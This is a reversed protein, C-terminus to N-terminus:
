VMDHRYILNCWGNEGPAKDEHGAVSLWHRMAAHHRDNLKAASFFLPAAIQSEFAALHGSKDRWELSDHETKCSSILQNQLKAANDGTRSSFCIAGTFPQMVYLAYSTSM